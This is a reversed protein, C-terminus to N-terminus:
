FIALMKNFCDKYMKKLCVDCLKGAWIDAVIKGRQRSKIVLAFAWNIPAWNRGYDGDNEFHKYSRLKCKESELM